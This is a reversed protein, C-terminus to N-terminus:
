SKHAIPFRMRVRTGDSTDITMGHAVARMIRLGFGRWPRPDRTVFSGRDAIELALEQGEFRARLEVSRNAGADGYAHEVVNALAEGAATTIDDLADGGIGAAECFARLARRLPAVTRPQARGRLHLESAENM